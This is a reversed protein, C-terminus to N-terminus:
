FNIGLLLTFSNDVSSTNLGKGYKLKLYTKKTLNYIGSISITEINIDNINYISNSNSYYSSIYARNSIYYGLGLLYSQTNTYTIENTDTDGVITYNYNIFFKIDKFVYSLGVGLVYDLKNNEDDTYTPLYIGSSVSARLNDFITKSYGIGIYTDLLGNLQTTPSDYQYYSTNMSIYMNDYSYSLSNFGVITTTKNNNSDLNDLYNLGFSINYRGKKIPNLKLKKITCGEINVIDTFVTDACKDKSDEVGDFDSDIVSSNLISFAFLSILIVKRINIGIM